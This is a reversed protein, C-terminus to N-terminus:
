FQKRIRLKQLLTWPRASPPIEIDFTTDRNAEREVWKKYVFQLAVSSSSNRNQGRVCTEDVKNCFLHPSTVAYIKKSRVAVCM